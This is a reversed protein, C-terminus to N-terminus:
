MTARDHFPNCYCVAVQRLKVKLSVTVWSPFVFCHGGARVYCTVCLAALFGCSDTLLLMLRVDVMQRSVCTGTKVCTPCVGSVSCHHSMWGAASRDLCHDALMSRTTLYM